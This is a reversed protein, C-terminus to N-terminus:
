LAKRLLISKLSQRATYLRSKVTKEPLDLVFSIEDYSLNQFHKLVIVVRHELSLNMLAEQVANKAVIQDFYEEPTREKSAYSDDLKEFRQLQNVFNLSENVVIRYLWSFFKYKSDFTDLKEYAKIFASQSVDEADDYNDTVRLAVNFIKKEYRDVLAEFAKPDGGLCQRVLIHDDDPVM